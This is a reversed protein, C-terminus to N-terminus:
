KYSLLKIVYSIFVSYVYCYTPIKNSCGLDPYKGGRIKSIGSHPRSFFIVFKPARQRCLFRVTKNEDEETSSSTCETPCFDTRFSFSRAFVTLLSWMSLRINVLSNIQRYWYLQYEKRFYLKKKKVKRNLWKFVRRLKHLAIFSGSLM